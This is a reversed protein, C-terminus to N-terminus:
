RGFTLSGVQHDVQAGGALLPPGPLIHGLALGAMRAVGEVVQAGVEDAHLGIIGVIRRGGGEDGGVLPKGLIGVLKVAEAHGVAAHGALGAM